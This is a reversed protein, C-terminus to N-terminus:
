KNCEDIYPPIFNHNILGLAMLPKQMSVALHLHFTDVSIIADCKRILELLEAIDNYILVNFEKYEKIYAAHSHFLIVTVYSLNINNEKCSDILKRKNFYKDKTSGLPFALINTESGKLIKANINIGFLKSYGSYISTNLYLYKKKFGLFFISNRTNKCDLILDERENIKNRLEIGGLIMIYINKLSIRRLSYLPFVDEVVNLVKVEHKKKLLNKTLQELGSRIIITHSEECKNLFSILITLDGFGKLGLFIM